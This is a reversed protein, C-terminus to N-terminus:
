MMRAFKQLHELKVSLVINFLFFSVFEYIELNNLNYLKVESGNLECKLLKNIDCLFDGASEDKM